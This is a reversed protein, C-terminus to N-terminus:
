GWSISATFKRVFFLFGSITFKLGGLFITQVADGEGRSIGRRQPTGNAHVPLLYGYGETNLEVEM